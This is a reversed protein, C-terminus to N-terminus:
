SAFEILRNLADANWGAYSLFLGPRRHHDRCHRALSNAADGLFADVLTTGPALCAVGPPDDARHALMIPLGCAPARRRGVLARTRCSRGTATPPHPLPRPRAFSTGAGALPSPMLGRSKCRGRPKQIAGPRYIATLPRCATISSLASTPSRKLLAGAPPSPPVAARCVSASPEGRVIVSFAVPRSGPHALFLGRAALYVPSLAGPHVAPWAAQQDLDFGIDGRQWGTM